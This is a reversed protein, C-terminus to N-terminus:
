WVVVAGCVYMRPCHQPVHVLAVVDVAVPVWVRCWVCVAGGCWVVGCVGEHGVVGVHCVVVVGGSRM